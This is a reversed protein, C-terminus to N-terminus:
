FTTALSLSEEDGPSSLLSAMRSFQWKSVTGSEGPALSSAILQATMSSTLRINIFLALDKAWPHQTIFAHSAPLMQEEAGNFLFVLDHSFMPGSM